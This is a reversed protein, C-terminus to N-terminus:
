NDGLAIEVNSQNVKHLSLPYKVNKVVIQALQRTCKELDVIETISDGIVALDEETEMETEMEDVLVEKLNAQDLVIQVDLQNVKHLSLPCKVPRIVILVPQTSCKETKWKKEIKRRTISM